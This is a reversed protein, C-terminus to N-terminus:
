NGFAQEHCYAFLLDWERRQIRRCLLVLAAAGHEAQACLDVFAAADWTKQRALYESGQPVGAEETM